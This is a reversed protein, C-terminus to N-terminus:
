FIKKFYLSLRIEGGLKGTIQNRRFSLTEVRIMKEYNDVYELFDQIQEFTGSFSSISVSYVDYDSFEKTNPRVNIDEKNWSIPANAKFTRFVETFENPSKISEVKGALKEKELEIEEIQKKIEEESLARQLAEYKQEKIEYQMKVEARTKLLNNGFVFIFIIYILILIGILIEKKNKINKLDIKEFKIDKLSIPKTFFDKNV